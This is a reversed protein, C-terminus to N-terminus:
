LDNVCSLSLVACIVILLLSFKFVLRGPSCCDSFRPQEDSDPYFDWGNALSKYFISPALVGEGGGSGRM